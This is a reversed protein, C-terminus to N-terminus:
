NDNLCVRYENELGEVELDGFDLPLADQCIGENCLQITSDSLM